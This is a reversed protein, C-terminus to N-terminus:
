PACGAASSPGYSPPPGGPLDIPTASLDFALRGGSAVDSLRLWPEQRRAGNLRLATVYPAGRAAGRGTITLDGGALRVTASPFLPSGLALVDTGPIAPYLGLAGFVYWASMQGLDDNGPYGGPSADFLSLIARRM